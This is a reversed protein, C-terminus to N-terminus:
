ALQVDCTLLIPDEEPAFMLGIRCDDGSQRRNIKITLHNDTDKSIAMVVKAVSYFYMSHANNTSLQLNLKDLIPILTM